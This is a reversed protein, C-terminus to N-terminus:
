SASSAPMGNRATVSSAYRSVQGAEVQGCFDCLLEDVHIGVESTVPGTCGCDRQAFEDPVRGDGADFGDIALGGSEGGPSSDAVTVLM